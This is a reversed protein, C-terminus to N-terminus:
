SSREVQDSKWKSFVSLSFSTNDKEDHLRWKWWFVARIAVFWPLRKKISCPDARIFEPKSHYSSYVDWQTNCMQSQASSQTQTTEFQTIPGFTEALCDWLAIASSASGTKEWNSNKKGLRLWGKNTLNRLPKERLCHECRTGPCPAWTRYPSCLM